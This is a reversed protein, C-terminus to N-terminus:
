SVLYAYQASVRAGESVKFQHGAGQQALFQGYETHMLTGSGSVLLENSNAGLTAGLMIHSAELQAGGLIRMSNGSGAGGVILSNEILMTSGSDLSVSGSENSSLGIYFDGVRLRSENAAVLEANGSIDGVIIAGTTGIMPLNNTNVDGVFVQGGDQVILSNGTGGSLWSYEPSTAPLKWGGLYLGNSNRWESGAGSVTVTNNSASAMGGVVGYLDEVVAGDLVELSNDHGELGVYLYGSASTVVPGGVSFPPLVENIMLTSGSGSVLIRNGSSGSEEGVLVNHSDVRGGNMVQVVNGAGFVGVMLEDLDVNSGEGSVIMLNNSSSLESGMKLSSAAISAGDFVSLSNGSGYSGILLDNDVNWLSGTGNIIVSNGTAMSESGIEARASFVYGGDEILLTNDSGQMGVFLNENNQWVSGEGSVIVSNGESYDSNGIYGYDSEVRGKNEILLQNNDGFYGVDLQWSIDWVSGEGTITASNNNAGNAYGLHGLSTNVQGGDSIVLSNESSRLYGIALSSARVNSGEGSM